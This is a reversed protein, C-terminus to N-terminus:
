GKCGITGRSDTRDALELLQEGLGQDLLWIHLGLDRRRADQQGGDQVTAEHMRRQQTRQGLRDVALKMCQIAQAPAVQLEIGPGVIRADPAPEGVGDGSAKDDFPSLSSM